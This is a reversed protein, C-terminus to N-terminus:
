FQTTIEYDSSDIVDVTITGSIDTRYVVGWVAMRAVAEDTPFGYM